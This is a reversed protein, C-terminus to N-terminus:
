NTKRLDIGGDILYILHGLLVGGHDLFGIRCADSQSLFGAAEPPKNPPGLQRMLAADTARWRDHRTVYVM